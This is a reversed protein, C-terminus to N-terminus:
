GEHAHASSCVISVQQRLVAVEEKLAQEWLMLYDHQDSGHQLNPWLAQMCNIFYTHRLLYGLLKVSHLGVDDLLILTYHPSGDCSSAAPIIASMVVIYTVAEWKGSLYCQQWKEASCLSILSAIDCVSGGTLKLIVDTTGRYILLYIDKNWAM